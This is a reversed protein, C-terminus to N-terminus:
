QAGGAQIIEASATTVVRSFEVAKKKMGSPNVSSVESGVKWWEPSTMRLLEESEQALYSRTAEFIREFDGVHYSRRLHACGIVAASLYSFFTAGSSKFVATNNRTEPTTFLREVARWYNAFISNRESIDAIHQLPHSAVLVSGKLPATFAHQTVTTRPTRETNAMQIQGRWPSEEGTNLFELILIVDRDAGTEIQRRIWSPIHPLPHTRQMEYFRARIHAGVAPDVAKQTTNVVYFHLMQEVTRIDVAINAIIPFALLDPVRDAARLLGEIRHQGDVVDFPCVEGPRFSIENRAEDFNIHKETALFISTPLFAQQGHNWAEVVYNALRKAREEQLIRQFGEARPGMRDPDLRDIRFFGERKFDSVPFSTAFLTKSGQRVMAAPRTIIDTM